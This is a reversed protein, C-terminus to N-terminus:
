GILVLQLKSFITHHQFRPLLLLMHRISLLLSLTPCITRLLISYLPLVSVQLLLSQYYLMLQHYAQLIKLSPLSSKLEKLDLPHQNLYPFQPSLSLQPPLLNLIIPGMWLITLSYLFLHHILPQLFM